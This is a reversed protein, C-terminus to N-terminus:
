WPTPFDGDACVKLPDDDDESVPLTARPAITDLDLDVEHIPGLVDDDTCAEAVVAGDCLYKVPRTM